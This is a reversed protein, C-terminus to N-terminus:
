KTEKPETVMKVKINEDSLKGNIYGFGILLAIFGGYACAWRIVTQPVLMGISDLAWDSLKMDYQRNVFTKAPEEFPHKLGYVFGSGIKKLNKKM